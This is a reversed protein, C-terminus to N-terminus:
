ASQIVWLSHLCNFLQFYNLWNMWMCGTSACTNLLWWGPLITMYCVHTIHLRITWTCVTWTCILASCFFHPQEKVAQTVASIKLQPVLFYSTMLQCHNWIPHYCLVSANASIVTTTYLNDKFYQQMQNLKSEYTKRTNASITKSMVIGATAIDHDYIDNSQDTSPVLAPPSQNTTSQSIPSNHQLNTSSDTSRDTRGRKRANSMDVFSSRKLSHYRVEWIFSHPWHHNCYM